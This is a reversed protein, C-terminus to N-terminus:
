NVRFNVHITCNHCHNEVTWPHFTWFFKRVKWFPSTHDSGFFPSLNDCFPWPCFTRPVCLGLSAYDWPRMIRPVCLGLSAYDWPHMMWNKRPSIIWPRMTWPHLTVAGCLKCLIAVKVRYLKIKRKITGHRHSGLSHTGPHHMGPHHM